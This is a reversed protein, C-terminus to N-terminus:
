TTREQEVTQKTIEFIQVSLNNNLFLQEMRAKDTDTIFVQGFADNTVLSMINAVRHHDLKDFIDDMLLLPKRGSNRKLFEYQALKLAVLYSKQQGQSGFKKIPKHEILFLLDDKHIGVTTYELAMDRKFNANFADMYADGNASDVFQISVYEESGSILQYYENFLPIFEDLFAKRKDRIITALEALQIDWIELNSQIIKREAAMHKILANRQALVRNYSILTQLYEKDLQSIISDIFKRRVESGEGILDRDYPSIMVSPFKGVHDSLREYDKKNFKFRKKDGRKVGCYLESQAENDDMIGQIVFFNQSDNINQSDISNFYSKSFSLYHIADLINTKGAGNNGVFCVVPLNFQFNQELHNKFNLISLSKLRL